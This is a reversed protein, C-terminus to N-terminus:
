VLLLNDRLSECELRSAELQQNSLSLDAKTDCAQSTIQELKKKLELEIIENEAAFKKKLDNM